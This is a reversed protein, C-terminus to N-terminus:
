IYLGLRYYNTQASAGFCSGCFCTLTRKSKRTFSLKKQPICLVLLGEEGEDFQGELVLYLERIDELGRNNPQLLSEIARANFGTTSIPIDLRRYLVKSSVYKFTKCVRCMAVLTRRPLYEVVMSLIEPPLLCIDPGSFGRSPAEWSLIMQDKLDPLARSQM